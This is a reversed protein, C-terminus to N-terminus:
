ALSVNLRAVADGGARKRVQGKGARTFSCALLFVDFASPATRALVSLPVMTPLAPLVPYPLLFGFLSRKTCRLAFPTTVYHAARFRTPPGIQRQPLSNNTAPHCAALM